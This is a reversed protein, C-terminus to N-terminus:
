NSRSEDIKSLNLKLVQIGLEPISQARGRIRHSNKRYALYNSSFIDRAVWYGRRSFESLIMCELESTAM